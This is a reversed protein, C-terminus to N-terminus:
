LGLLEKLKKIDYGVVFKGDIETVPVSRVGTKEYIRKAADPDKSLDVEEFGINNQKLFNEVMVCFACGPATYVIVKMNIKGRLRM